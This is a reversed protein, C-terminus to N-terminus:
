NETLPLMADYLPTRPGSAKKKQLERYDLGQVTLADLGLTIRMTANASLARENADLRTGTLAWDVKENARIREKLATDLEMETPLQNNNYRQLLAQLMERTLKPLKGPPYHDSPASPDLASDSQKGSELRQKKQKEM